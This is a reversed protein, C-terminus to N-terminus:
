SLGEEGYHEKLIHEKFKEYTEPSLDHEIKCADEQAVDPDVGLYTFFKTFLQHRDYVDNALKLGEDTFLLEGDLDVNLYGGLRLKKVAISVSAKTFGLANAVDISRVFGKDRKLLLITELYDEASKHADKM